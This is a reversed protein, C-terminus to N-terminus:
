SLAKKSQQDMALLAERAEKLYGRPYRRRVEITLPDDAKYNHSVNGIPCPLTSQMSLLANLVEPGKSSLFCLDPLNFPV